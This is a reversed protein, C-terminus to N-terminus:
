EEDLKLGKGELKLLRDQIHSIRDSEASAWAVLMRINRMITTIDESLKEVTSEYHELLDDM